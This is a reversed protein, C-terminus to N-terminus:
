DHKEIQIITPKSEPIKNITIYLMGKKSSAKVSSQDVDKPLAVSRSFSFYSYEERLIEEEQDKKTDEHQYSINLINDRIEVKVKDSDIGPIAVSVKYSDKYEAVNLAPSYNSKRKGYVNFPHFSDDLLQDM